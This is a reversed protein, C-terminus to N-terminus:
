KTDINELLAEVEPQTLRVFGGSKLKVLYNRAYVVPPSPEISKVDNTDVMVGQSLVVLMLSLLFERM